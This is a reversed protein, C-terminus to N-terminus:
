KAFLENIASANSRLLEIYKSMDIKSLSKYDSCTWNKDSYMCHSCDYKNLCNVCLKEYRCFLDSFRKAILDFDISLNDNSIQGLPLDFDIRECQFVLGVSSVLLKKEFPFCTAPTFSPLDRGKTLFDRYYQYYNNSFTKYINILDKYIPNTIRYDECLQKNSAYSEILDSNVNKYYRAIENTDKLSNESIELITPFTGYTDKIYRTTGLVTTRTNIVSQFTINNRFYDPYSKKIRDLNKTVLKFSDLGLKNKRYSNAKEDGDLSVSITFNNSYLFDVYRLLLIGNTTIYYKFTLNNPAYEKLYDVIYKILKFNMLPEGGYFMIEIDKNPTSNKWIKLYLDLIVKAINATLYANRNAPRNIPQIYNSGYGCYQCNLNCDETVEFIISTINEFNQRVYDPTIQPLRKIIDDTSYIQDGSYTLNHTLQDFLYTLGNVEYKIIRNTSLTM